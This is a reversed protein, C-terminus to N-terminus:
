KKRKRARKKAKRKALQKDLEAKPVKVLVSLLRETEVVGRAGAADATADDHDPYGFAISVRDAGRFRSAFPEADLERPSHGFDVRAGNRERCATAHLERRESRM